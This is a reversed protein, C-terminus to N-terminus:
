RTKDALVQELGAIEQQRTRTRTEADAILGHAKERAELQAEKKLTEAEREAQQRLQGAHQEARGIIESAIRRRSAMWWAIAAIAAVDSVAGVLALYVVASPSM